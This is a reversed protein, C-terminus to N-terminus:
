LPNLFDVSKVAISFRLSLQEDKCLPAPDFEIKSYGLGAGVMLEKGKIRTMGAPNHLATSADSAVAEAGSSAVGMSPTAFEQLYLGGAWGQGSVFATLLALSLGLFIGRCCVVQRKVSYEM